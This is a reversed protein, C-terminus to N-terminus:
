SRNLQPFRRLRPRTLSHGGSHRSTPETNFSIRGDPRVMVYLPRQQPPAAIHPKFLRLPM